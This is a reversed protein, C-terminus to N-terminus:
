IMEMHADNSMFLWLFGWVESRVCNSFRLAVDAGLTNIFFKNFYTM